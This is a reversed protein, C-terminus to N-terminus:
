WKAVAGNICHPRLNCSFFRRRLFQFAFGTIQPEKGPHTPPTRKM